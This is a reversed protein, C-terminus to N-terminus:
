PLVCMAKMNGEHCCVVLKRCSAPLSIFWIPGKLHDECRPMLGRDGCQSPNLM